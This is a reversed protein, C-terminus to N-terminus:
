WWIVVMDAINALMEGGLFWIENGSFRPELGGRWLYGRVSRCGRLWAVFIVNRFPVRKRTGYAAAGVPADARGSAPTCPSARFSENMAKARPRWFGL